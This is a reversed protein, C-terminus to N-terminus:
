SLKLMVPGADDDRLHMLHITLLYPMVRLCSRYFCVM